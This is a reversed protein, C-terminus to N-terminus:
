MFNVWIKAYYIETVCYIFYKEFYREFKNIKIPENLIFIWFANNYATTRTLVSLFLAKHFFFPVRSRDTTSVSIYYVRGSGGTAVPVREM